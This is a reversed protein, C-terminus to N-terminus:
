YEMWNQYELLNIRHFHDVNNTLIKGDNAIVVSAILEDFDGIGLGQQKLEAYIQAYFKLADRSFDVITFRSVFEEVIRINAAVKSSIYAGRLLEAYNFTTLYIHINQEFIQKMVNKAKKGRPTSKESLFAIALDTDIFTKM